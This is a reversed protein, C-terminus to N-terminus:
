LCHAPEGAIQTTKATLGVLAAHHPNEAIHQLIKPTAHTWSGTCSDKWWGGTVFHKVRDIGTFAWAIDRSLAQQNSYIM